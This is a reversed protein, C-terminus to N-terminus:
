RDEGGGPERGPPQEFEQDLGHVPVDRGEVLHPAQSTVRLRAAARTPHLQCTSAALQTNKPLVQGRTRSPHEQDGALGADALGRQCSGDTLARLGAARRENHAV